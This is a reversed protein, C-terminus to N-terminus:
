ILTVFNGWIPRNGSDNSTEHILFRRPSFSGTRRVWDSGFSGGFEPLPDHCPKEALSEPNTPDHSVQHIPPSCRHVQLIGDPHTGIWLAQDRDELMSIVGDAPRRSSRPQRLVRPDTPPDAPRIHCSRKNPLLSGSTGARDEYFSM